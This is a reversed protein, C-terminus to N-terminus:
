DPVVTIEAIPVVSHELEVEFVGEITAPVDFEVTGGATVEKAVDYGHLHVEEDIDSDVVFRISGGKQVEIEQVGGVPQGDEIEIVPAAPPSAPAATEDDSSDDKLVVFLVVAVVLGGVALLAPITRSTL